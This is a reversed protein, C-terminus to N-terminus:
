SRSAFMSPPIGGKGTILAAHSAPVSIRVIFVFPWRCVRGLDAGNVVTEDSTVLASIGHDKFMGRTDRAASIYPKAYSAEGRKAGGCGDIEIYVDIKLCKVMSEICGVFCGACCAPCTEASTQTRRTKPTLPDGGQVLMLLCSQVFVKCVFGEHSSTAFRANCYDHIYTGGSAAQLILAAFAVFYVNVHHNSINRAVQPLLSALSIRSRFGFYALMSFLAIITLIVADAEALTLTSM